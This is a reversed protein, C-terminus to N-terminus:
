ITINDVSRFIGVNILLLVVQVLIPVNNQSHSSSPINLFINWGYFLYINKVFTELTISHEKVYKFTKGCTLIRLCIWINKQWVKQECKFKYSFFECMHKTRIILVEFKIVDNM